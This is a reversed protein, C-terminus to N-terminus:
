RRQGGRRRQARRMVVVLRPSALAPPSNLPAPSRPAASARMMVDVSPIWATNPITLLMLMCGQQAASEEDLEDCRSNVLHPHPPSPQYLLM